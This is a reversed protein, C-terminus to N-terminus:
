ESQKTYMSLSMCSFEISSIGGAKM